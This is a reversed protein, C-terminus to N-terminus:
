KKNRKYAMVKSYDGTKEAQKRLRELTTDTAGSLNGAGTLKSEPKTSPKRKTVKLETELKAVAFAFKIPDNIESIEKARKPNKGLAYILLNANEAGQLIMGQQQESLTQTAVYEAEEYDRVKLKKKGENYSQVKANWEEQIKREQEQKESQKIDHERKQEFWKDLKDEYAESDYDCSELTPKPPLSVEKVEEKKAQLQELQKKLERNEKSLTKNSERVEKVWKPAENTDEEAPSVEEDGITIVVEDDEDEESEETEEEQETEEEAEAEVEEEQEVEDDSHVELDEDVNDVEPVTIEETIVGM